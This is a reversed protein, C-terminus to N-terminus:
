TPSGVFWARSHVLMAHVQDLFSLNESVQRWQLKVCQRMALTTGEDTPASKHSPDAAGDAGMYNNIKMWEGAQALFSFM